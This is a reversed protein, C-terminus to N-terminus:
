YSACAFPHAKRTVTCKYHMGTSWKKTENMITKKNMKKQRMKKKQKTKRTLINGTGTVQKTLIGQLATKMNKSDAGVDGAIDGINDALEAVPDKSGLGDFVANAIALSAPDMNDEGWSVNYSDAVGGPVPLYVSGLIKRTKGQGAMTKGRPAIKYGKMEKPM